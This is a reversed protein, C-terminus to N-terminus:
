HNGFNFVVGATYRFNNQNANSQTFFNGFRTLVYDLEAARISVTHNIPFDIGGGLMAAWGNNSPSASVGGCGTATPQCITHFANGYVNSHAAGALADVFIQMHQHRFKIQPGFLYTFLNGSVSGHAGSPFAPSPAITFADTFSGYGQLDAKVGIHDTFNWVFAGGGGNLSKNQTDAQAPAFHMYSYDLSVEARPYEQAVAAVGLLLTTGFVLSKILSM